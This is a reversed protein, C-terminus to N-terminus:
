SLSEDSGRMAILWFVSGAISGFLAYILLQEYLPRGAPVTVAALAGVLGGFLTALRLTIPMFRRLLLFAPAGVFLTFLASYPLLVLFAAAVFILADWVGHIHPEYPLATMSMLLAPVASAAIFGLITAGLVTM